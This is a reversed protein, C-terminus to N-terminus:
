NLELLLISLNSINNCKRQKMIRLFTYFIHLIEQGFFRTMYNKKVFRIYTYPTMNKQHLLTHHYILALCTAIISNSTINNLLLLLLRSVIIIPFTIEQMRTGVQMQDFRALSPPTPWLKDGNGAYVSSAGRGGNYEPDVIRVKLVEQESKCQSTYAPLLCVRTVSFGDALSLEPGPFSFELDRTPPVQTETGSQM